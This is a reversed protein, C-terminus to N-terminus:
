APIPHPAADLWPIVPKRTAAYNPVASDLRNALEPLRAVPVNPFLHHERHYFMLYAVRALIGRQSRGALGHAGHHTIWVAFFATLCQAITMAVIHSFVAPHGIVIAAAVVAVICLWDVAMRHRWNPGGHQWVAINLDIPFRPGYALVKYWPMHSCKGEHDGPGGAHKHHQLHCFADANNSGLMIASLGHMLAHDQARTLGLNGHIAEHNLRLACLFFMFSAPFGLWFLPSAYLALSLFLWPLPLALEHLTRTRSMELLDRWLVNQPQPEFFPKHALPMGYKQRLM